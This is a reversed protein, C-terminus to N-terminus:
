TKTLMQGARGFAGDEAHRSAVGDQLALRRAQAM